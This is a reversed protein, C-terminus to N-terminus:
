RLGMPLSPGVEDEEEEGINVLHGIVLYPSRDEKVTQHQLKHNYIFFYYNSAYSLYVLLHFFLFLYLPINVDVRLRKGVTQQEHRLSNGM